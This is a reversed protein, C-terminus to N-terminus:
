TSRRPLAALRRPQQPQAAPVSSRLLEGPQVLNIQPVESSPLSAGSSSGSDRFRAMRALNWVSWAYALGLLIWIVIGVGVLAAGM